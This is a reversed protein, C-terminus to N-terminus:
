PWSYSSWFFPNFLFSCVHLYRTQDRLHSHAELSLMEFARTFLSSIHSPNLACVDSFHPAGGLHLGHRLCAKLWSALAQNVHGKEHFKLNQKEFKFITVLTSNFLNFFFFFFVQSNFCGFRCSFFGLGLQLIKLTNEKRQNRSFFFNFFWDNSTSSYQNPHIMTMQQASKKKKEKFPHWQLTLFKFTSIDSSLTLTGFNFYLVMM